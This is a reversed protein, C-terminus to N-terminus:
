RLPCTCPSEPTLGQNEPISSHTSDGMVLTNREQPPRIIAGFSHVFFKGYYNVLGLYSRLEAVNKPTPADRIARVKEDTPHLRDCDIRHGLYEVSTQLFFCKKKLRLGSQELRQLVVDLTHLHEEDTKGTLLIDDIYVAVGPIDQLLSEMTRQFIAPASSVGFPLRNYRFLGKHTNIVVYGRSEDELEIQQYAHSLDLKTFLKGGALKAFLEEIKPLPYCETQSVQNVTTKYDGCIRIGGDSKVVAVIPAAWKSFQVPEIVGESQLRIFPVSRPKFFRPRADKDVHLTIKVGNLKGLEDQFTAARKQLIEDM